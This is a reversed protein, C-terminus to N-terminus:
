TVIGVSAVAEEGHVVVLPVVFVEQYPPPKEEEGGAM